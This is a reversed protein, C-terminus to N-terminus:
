EKPCPPIGTINECADDDAENDLICCDIDGILCSLDEETEEEIENEVEEVEEETTPSVIKGMLPSKRKDIKSEVEDDEEILIGLTRQPYKEMKKKPEWGNEKIFNKFDDILM